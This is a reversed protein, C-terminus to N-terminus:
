SRLCSGINKHIAFAATEKYEDLFTKVAREVPIRCSNPSEPLPEPITVEGSRSGAKEWEAAVGKGEDWIGKGTQKRSLKGGLRGVFHIQCGCRKWGRRREQFEGTKSKVPFRAECGSIAAICPSRSGTQV